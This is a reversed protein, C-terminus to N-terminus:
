RGASCVRWVRERGSPCLQVFRRMVRVRRVAERLTMLGSVLVLRSEESVRHVAYGDRQLDEIVYTAWSRDGSFFLAHASSTNNM